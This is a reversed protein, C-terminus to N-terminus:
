LGLTLDRGEVSAVCPPQSHVWGLHSPHFGLNAISYTSSLHLSPSIAASSGPVDTPFTTEADMRGALPFEHQENIWQVQPCSVASLIQPLHHTSLVSFLGIGSFLLWLFGFHSKLLKLSLMQSWGTPRLGSWFLVRKRWQDVPICLASLNVTKTAKGGLLGYWPM